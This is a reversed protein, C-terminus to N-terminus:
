FMHTTDRVLELTSTNAKGRAYDIKHSRIIYNVATAAAGGCDDLAVTILDGPEHVLNCPVVLTAQYCENALETALYEALTVCDADLNLYDNQEEMVAAYGLGALTTNTATGTKRGGLAIRPSGWMEARVYDDSYVAGQWYVTIKSVAEFPSEMQGGYEVKNCDSLHGATTKMVIDTYGDPTPSITVYYDDAWNDQSWTWHNDTVPGVGSDSNNYYLDAEWIKTSAGPLDTMSYHEWGVVNVVGAMSEPMQWREEFSILLPHAGLAGYTWSSAGTPICPRSVAKGEMDFWLFMHQSGLLNAIDQMPNFTGPKWEQVAYDLSALSIDGASFGVQADTLIDTVLQNIQRDAASTRHASSGGGTPVVRNLRVEMTVDCLWAKYGADMCRLAVIEGEGRKVANTAQVIVGQFCQVLAAPSNTMWVRVSHGIDGPPDAADGWLLSYARTANALEISAEGARNEMTHTISVSLVDASVDVYSGGYEIEVKCSPLRTLATTALTDTYSSDLTRAM